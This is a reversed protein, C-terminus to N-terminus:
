EVKAKVKIKLNLSFDDDAIPSNTSGTLQVQVIGSTISALISSVSSPIAIPNTATGPILELAQNFLSIGGISCSFNGEISDGDYDNLTIIVSEVDAEVFTSVNDLLDSINIDRTIDISSLGELGSVSANTEFDDVVVFQIAGDEECNSFAFAVFLLLLVTKILKIKKM